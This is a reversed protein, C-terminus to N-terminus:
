SSVRRSTTGRAVCHPAVWCQRLKCSGAHGLLDRCSDECCTCMTLVGVFILSAIFIEEPVPREGDSACGDADGVVVACAEFRDRYDCMIVAWWPLVQAAPTFNTAVKDILAMEETDLLVFEQAVEGMAKADQQQHDDLVEALRALDQDSCRHADMTNPLGAFFVCFGCFVFFWGVWEFGIKGGFCGGVRVWSTCGWFWGGM